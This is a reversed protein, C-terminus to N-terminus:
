PSRRGAITRQLDARRRKRANNRDAMAEQNVAAMDKGALLGEIHVAVDEVKLDAAKIVQHVRGDGGVVYANLNTGGRVSANINTYPSANDCDTLVRPSSRFDRYKRLQEKSAYAQAEAATMEKGAYVAFVKVGQAGFRSEIQDFHTWVYPLQNADGFFVLVFPNSGAMTSSEVTNGDSDIARFEAHPKGVAPDVSTPEGRFIRHMSDVLPLEPMTLTFSEEVASDNFAWETFRWDSDKFRQRGQVIKPDFAREYEPVIRVLVPNDGRAIYLHWEYFGEDTRDGKMVVHDTTVGGYDKTGRHYVERPKMLAELSDPDFLSLLSAADLRWFGRPRVAEHRVLEGLSAPAETVFVHGGEIRMINRGDSGIEFHYKDSRSGEKVVMLRNPKAYAVQHNLPGPTNAMTPGAAGQEHINFAVKFRCSDQASYFKAMRRLLRRGEAIEAPTAPEEKDTKPPLPQFEMAYRGKGIRLMKPKPQEVLEMERYPPFIVEGPLPSSNPDLKHPTYQKTSDEGSPLDQLCCCESNVRRSLVERAERQQRLSQGNETAMDRNALLGDVQRSLEDALNTGTSVVQQTIGNAAVVYTQITKRPAVPKLERKLESNWDFTLSGKAFVGPDSTLKWVPPDANWQELGQQLLSDDGIHLTEFRVGKGLYKQRVADFQKWWPGIAANESGWLVLVVPGDGVLDDTTLIKGDQNMASFEALPQGVMPNLSDQEGFALAGRSDVLEENAKVQVRFADGAPSEFSWDTFRVDTASWRDKGALTPFLRDLDPQSYVPVAIEGRAIYLEWRFSTRGKSTPGSADIILRDTTVQGFKRTGRHSVECSAILTEVSEPSFLSLVRPADFRWADSPQLATSEIVGQLSKPAPEVYCRGYDRRMIFDGDCVVEVFYEVPGSFDCRYSLRNPRACSLSVQQDWKVFGMTGEEDVRRQATFSISSKAGLFKGVRRLIDEGRKIQEPTAPPTPPTPDAPLVKETVISKGNTITVTQGRLPTEPYEPFVPNLVQADAPLPGMLIFVSAAFFFWSSINVRIM